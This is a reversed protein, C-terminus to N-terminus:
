ADFARCSVTRMGPQPMAAAGRSVQLLLTGSQVAIAGGQLKAMNGAFVSSGNVSVLTANPRTVSCTGSGKFDDLGMNIAGGGQWIVLYVPRKL